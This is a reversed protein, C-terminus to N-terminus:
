KKTGAGGAGGVKPNAGPSAVQRNSRGWLRAVRELPLPRAQGAAQKVQLAAARLEAPPSLPAGAPAYAAHEVAAALRRLCSGTGGSEGLTAATRTAWESPTEALEYGLGRRRMVNALDGWVSLTELAAEVAGPGLGRGTLAQALEARSRAQVHRRKRGQGLGAVAWAALAVLAAGGLLPAWRRPSSFTGGAPARRRPRVQPVQDGRGGGGGGAKPRGGLKSHAGSHNAGPGLQPAGTPGTYQGAHPIAYRPTPEFPVWGAGPFWVEPWAHADNAAVQWTQPGVQTGTTFGVAVRAPLGVERALVAYATSYQQCYGAHTQFLFSELASGGAAPPPYLTYRFPSHHFFDQLALAKEYETDQGRVLRRALSAIDGALNSPLQLYAGMASPEEPSLAPEDNLVSASLGSLEDAAEVQYTEGNASPGRGLLSGSAPDWSVGGAGQVTEPSFAVPLWPSGLEEIAFTEKVQPARPYATAGPLAGPVGVYHGSLQWSNGNFYSLSTLRWYSATTSQVLFAPATSLQGLDSDMSVLPNPVLRLSRHLASDWGLLGRGDQGLAPVVAIAAVAALCVAAGSRASLRSPRRPARDGVPVVRGLRPAEAVFGHLAWYAAAALVFTGVAWYRAGRGGAGCCAGFVLLPPGLAALPRRSLALYTSANACLGAGVAVWLVLGPWAPVPPATGALSALAQATAARAAHASGLWPLGVVTSGPLVWDLAVVVSVLAGASRWWAQKLRLRRAAFGAAATAAATGLVPGLWTTSSFVGVLGVLAALTLSLAGLSVLADDTWAWDAPSSSRWWAGLPPGARGPQAPQERTPRYRAGLTAM